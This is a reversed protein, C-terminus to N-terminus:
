LCRCKPLIESGYCGLSGGLGFSRRALHWAFVVTPVGALRPTRCGGKLGKCGPLQAGAPHSASTQSIIELDGLHQHTSPPSPSAAWHWSGGVTITISIPLPSMGKTGSSTSLHGHRQCSGTTPSLWYVPPIGLWQWVLFDGTWLWWRPHLDRSRQHVRTLTHSTGLPDGDRPWCTPPSWIDTLLYPPEGAGWVAGGLGEAACTGWFGVTPESWCTHPPTNPHGGLEQRDVSPDGVWPRLVATPTPPPDAARLRHVSPVRGRGERATGARVAWLGAAGPAPLRGRGHGYAPPRAAPAATAAAAPGMAATAAAAATARHRRPARRRRGAPARRSLQSSARSAPGTTLAPSSPPLLPISVPAPAAGPRRRRTPPSLPWPASTLPRPDGRADCARLERCRTGPQVPARPGGGAGPAGRRRSSGQGARGGGGGSRAPAEGGRGRGSLPRGPGEGRAPVARTLGGGHAGPSDGSPKNKAM